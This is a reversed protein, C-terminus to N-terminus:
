LKEPVFTGNNAIINQMILKMRTEDNPNKALFSSPSIPPLYSLQKKDWGEFYLEILWKQNEDFYANLEDDWNSIGGRGDPNRRLGECDLKNAVQVRSYWLAGLACVTCTSNELVEHLPDEPAFEPIHELGVYIGTAAILKNSNLQEIVDKAILVRAEAKSVKSLDVFQRTM